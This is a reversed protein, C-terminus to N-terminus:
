DSLALRVDGLDVIQGPALHIRHTWTKIRPGAVVLEWTGPLIPVDCWPVAMAEPLIPPYLTLSDAQGPGDVKKLWVQSNSLEYFPPGEPAIFRGQIAGYSELSSASKLLVERLKDKGNGPWSTGDPYVAIQVERDQGPHILSWEQVPWVEPPPDYVRVEGIFPTDVEVEYEVFQPTRRFAQPQILTRVPEGRVCDYLGPLSEESTADFVHIRIRAISM